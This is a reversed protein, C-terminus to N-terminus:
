WIKNITDGVVNETLKREKEEFSVFREKLRYVNKFFDKTKEPLDAV